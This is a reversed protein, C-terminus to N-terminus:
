FQYRLSVQMRRPGGLTQNYNGFTGPDGLGANIDFTDFYVSNTANFMDWRFQFQHGEWPMNFSKAIGFDLNMYNDGRLVNRNGREGATGYRFSNIATDPDAFANPSSTSPDGGHIASSVNQTAPCPGFAQGLPHSGVPACTANPSLNWNTPWTRSGLVNFPLGSNARFIGSIEWGGLFQNAWGPLGSGFSRGSGIPLEYVWHTNFQHRMDFDSNGYDLDPRWSNVLFGTVGGFGQGGAGTEAREPTSSHDLSHSFTYNVNFLLGHSMRKRVSIQLAHYESRALGTWGNL